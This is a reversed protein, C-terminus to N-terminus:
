ASANKAAKYRKIAARFTENVEPPNVLAEVFSIQDKVSLKIVNEREIVEQCQKKLAAVLFATVTVGELGAALKISNSLDEPIRAELRTTGRPM